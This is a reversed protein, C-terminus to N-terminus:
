RSALVRALAMLKQPRTTRARKRFVDFDNAEIQDLIQSYLVRALKVPRRVFAPLEQIAEDTSAYLARARAIEFRMLNRWRDDVLKNQIDSETLDFSALDDLPLYIRGRDYDEGVDRLFNTLQMADGLNKASETMAPTMRVGLVCCMMVGVAAASGRTYRRLEEFSPYRHIDIDMEMADLFCLPEEIPMNSERAADCFARLVPETPRVGDLGRLFQNRFEILKARQEAPSMPGPNDVWEDPVRVFGYVAHVRPKLRKPFLRSAHYYTTGFQRHLDRCIRYDDASAFPESGVPFDNEVLRDGGTRM